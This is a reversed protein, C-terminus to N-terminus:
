GKPPTAVVPKQAAANSLMRQLKYTHSRRNQRYYINHSKKHAFRTFKTLAFDDFYQSITDQGLIFDFSFSGGHNRFVQEPKGDDMTHFDKIEEAQLQQKFRSAYTWFNSEIEQPVRTECNDLYQRYTRGAKKWFLYTPILIGKTACPSDDAVWSGRCGVCYDEYICITDVGGGRLASALSDTQRKLATKPYQAAANSTAKEQAQTTLKILLLTSLILLRPLPLSHM